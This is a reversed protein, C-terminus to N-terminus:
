KHSGHNYEIINSSIIDNNYEYGDYVTISRTPARCGAPTPAPTPLHPPHLLPHTKSWGCGVRGMAMGLELENLYHALENSLELWSTLQTMGGFTQVNLM